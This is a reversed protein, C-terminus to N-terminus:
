VIALFPRGPSSPLSFIERKTPFLINFLESSRWRPHIAFTRIRTSSNGKTKVVARIAPTSIWSKLSLCIVTESRKNQSWSLLRKFYTLRANNLESIMKPADKMHIKLIAFLCSWHGCCHYTSFDTTFPHPPTYDAACLVNEPELMETLRSTYVTIRDVKHM